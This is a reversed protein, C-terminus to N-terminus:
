VGIEAHAYAVRDSYVKGGGIRRLLRRTGFAATGLAYVLSDFPAKPNVPPPEFGRDQMLDHLKHLLRKRRTSNTYYTFSVTISPEDGNEVLHPSTSPMYAGMGPELQFVKARKRFSEDWRMLERSHRGHFRNRANESVTELDDHEWVYVTKRGRMQLIFNHETDMHFPTITKPSSVFIWGARYCMGPDRQEVEPQVDDLVERVFGRYLPDTQVNLLSMWAKASQIHSLTEEATMKNPHLRPAADFSTSATADNTHTRVLSERELRKGLEVLQDPQLLPHDQVTHRVAQIRWPDFRDWDIDFYRPVRANM